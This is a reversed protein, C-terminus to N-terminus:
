ILYFFLYNGFILNKTKNSCDGSFYCLILIDGYMLMFQILKRIVRSILNCDEDFYINNIQVMQSLLHEM